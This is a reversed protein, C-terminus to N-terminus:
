LSTTTLKKVDDVLASIARVYVSDLTEKRHSFGSQLRVPEVFWWLPARTKVDVIVLRVAYDTSSSCGTTRTGWVDSLSSAFSVEFILDADAPATVLEYRGSKKMATYFENYTREPAGLNKPLNEGPANAIFATKAARVQAPVPAAPAADKPEQGAVKSGCFFSIAALVCFVSTKRYADLM